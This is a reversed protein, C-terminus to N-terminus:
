RFEIYVSVARWRGDVFLQHLIDSDRHAEPGLAIVMAQGGSAHSMWSRAQLNPNPDAGFFMEFMAGVRPVAFLAESKMRKEDKLAMGMEELGKGYLKRGQRIMPEDGGKRGLMATGLALLVLRLAEDQTYLRSLAEAFGHIGTRTSNNIINPAYM